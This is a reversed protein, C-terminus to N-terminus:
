DESHFSGLEEIDQEQKHMEILEENALEQNHSYLLEQIDDQDMELQRASIGPLVRLQQITIHLGAKNNLLSNNIIDDTVPISKLYKSMIMLPVVLWRAFSIFSGHQVRHSIAGYHYM